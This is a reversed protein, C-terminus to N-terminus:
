VAAPSVPEEDTEPFCRILDSQRLVRYVREIDEAKMNSRWREAAQIPNKFISYYRAEDQTLRDFAAPQTGLTSAKIFGATQPNWSMGAFAFMEKSKQEPEQCVDAYRVAMCRDDGRTDLSAKENMLVWLWAIREVPHFQRMHNVTMGRGLRGVSSLVMELIGFDEAAPVPSVFKGLAEGRQISYVYGCPHRMIWIARCNESVRLIVGLRGLSLISKWVVCIEQRRVDACQLIPFRRHISSGPVAALVSLEHIRQALASRYQKRFVPLRGSVHANSMSPLEKLFKRIPERYQGAQEVPPALPVDFRLSDPEHKYLTTPHSDFIKGIWSTGSRAMGFLLLYKPTTVVMARYPTPFFLMKLAVRRSVSLGIRFIPCQDYPPDVPRAREPPFELRSMRLRSRGTGSGAAAAYDKLPPQSSFKADFSSAYPKQRVTPM